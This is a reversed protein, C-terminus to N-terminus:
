VIVKIKKGFFFDLSPIEEPEIPTLDDINIVESSPMEYSTPLPTLSPIPIVLATTEGQTIFYKVLTKTNSTFLPFNHGHKM